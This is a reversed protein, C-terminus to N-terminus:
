DKLIICEESIKLYVKDGSNKIKSTSTLHQDVALSKNNLVSINYKIMSGMYLSSIVRGEIINNGEKEEVVQVQEPRICFFVKGSLNEMKTVINFNKGDINVITKERASEVINVELL